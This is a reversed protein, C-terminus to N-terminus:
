SKRLNLIYVEGYIVTQRTEELIATDIRRMKISREMPQITGISFESAERRINGGTFVYNRTKYLIEITVRQGNELIGPCTGRVIENNIKKVQARTLVM